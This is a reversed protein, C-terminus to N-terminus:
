KESAAAEKKGYRRPKAVRDLVFTFVNMILISYSVGENMGGFYRLAVTLVGCGIGFILRGGNTAPSTSYDTAMFFAGLFLGGSLIEALMFDFDFFVAQGGKMHFLFTLLAVTGIYAVPIHWTIVRRVLLYIGGLLLAACCIEGICGGKFGFFLDAFTETPLTGAKLSSLPTAGTVGDFTKSASFLPESFASVTKAAPFAVWTSMLGPWSTLCAARASLAPNIFNKGLGGFLMKAVVIAFFAGFVALWYPAVIPLNFAFLIGTVVCSLDFVTNKRKRIKNFLTEFLVCSLVSVLVLTLARLGFFVVAAVLAPVLAIVVDLMVGRVTTKARYHPSSSVIFLNEM